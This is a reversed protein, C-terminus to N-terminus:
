LWMYDEHGNFDSQLVARQCLTLHVRKERIEYNKHSVHKYAVWM